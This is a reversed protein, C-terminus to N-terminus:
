EAKKGASAARMAATHLVDVIKMVDEYSMALRAFDIFKRRSAQNLEPPWEDPPVEM